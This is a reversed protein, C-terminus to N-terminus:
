QSLSCVWCGGHAPITLTGAPLFLLLGMILFGAATKTLASRLLSKRGNM